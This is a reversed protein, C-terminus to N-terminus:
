IGTRQSSTLTRFTRRGVVEICTKKRTKGTDQFCIGHHNGFIWSTVVHKEHLGWKFTFKLLVTDLVQIHKFGSGGPSLGIATLYITNNVRDRRPRSRPRGERRRAEAEGRRTWVEAEVPGRM